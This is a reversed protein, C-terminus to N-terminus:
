RLEIGLLPGRSSGETTGNTLHHMADMPIAHYPIRRGDRTQKREDSSQFSNRSELDVRSENARGLLRVEKEVEM